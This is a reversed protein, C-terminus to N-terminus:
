FMLVSGKKLYLILLLGDYRYTMKITIQWLRVLHLFLMGQKKRKMRCTILRM